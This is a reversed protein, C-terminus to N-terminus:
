AETAEENGDCKVVHELVTVASELRATIQDLKMLLELVHPTLAPDTPDFAKASM